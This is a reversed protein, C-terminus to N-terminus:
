VRQRRCHLAHLHGTKSYVFLRRTRIFRVIDEERESVTLIVVPLARFRPDAKIETLVELGTKKPMNIDLLVMGPLPCQSFPGEGRLYAMAEAGDRVVAVKNTM